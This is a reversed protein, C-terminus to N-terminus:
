ELLIEGYIMILYHIIIGLHLDNRGIWLRIETTFIVDM